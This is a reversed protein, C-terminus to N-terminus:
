LGPKLGNETEYRKTLKKANLYAKESVPKPLIEVRDLFKLKFERVVIINNGEVDKLNNDLKIAFTPYCDNEIIHKRVHTYGGSSTHYYHEYGKNEVITGPVNKLSKWGDVPNISTNVSTVLVRAGINRNIRKM